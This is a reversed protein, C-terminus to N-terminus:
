EEVCYCITEIHRDETDIPSGQINFTRDGYVIKHESTLGTFYRMTIKVTASAVVAQAYVAERGQIPQIRAWRQGILSWNDVKQGREDQTPINVYISVHRDLKAFDM